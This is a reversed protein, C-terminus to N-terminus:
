NWTEYLEKLMRTELAWDARTADRRPDGQPYGYPDDPAAGLYELSREAIARFIPAACIGGFQHRGVGPVFRKEPEDISVLLVFRPHEAPVFGLFSSINRDRSYVGDIVKEATGSKGAETYGRVDARKSTGGEKTAFKMSRVIRKAAEAELVQAGLPLRTRDILVTQMGEANTKVIKRIIHPQVSRGGNALIAYSRVLQVANVLINHGLALSYPTPLSWEPKGNPHLKGPTPLLGPNESPLELLTKKGFGFLEFLTKRYWVDGMTEILRYALRGMYINSSKQIAMDMNLYQHVRADKLPTTRGPFWGQATPIKEDPSFLPERGQRKLEENAKMCVALTIPKFISGPEYCDSIAHVRAAGQLVPDNFYDAYRSPDFAPTQAIAWIEGTYPEMMVAWGGKGKAIAVGKELETEAIAQLYHNVTLYIDAGNEPLEVVKGLDLSHRPSRVRLKKGPKGKLYPNLLMELGGTPIGQGDKPDKENQVTHLVAGLMSGFPYSRKYESSFFLANAAIKEQRAFPRWWAEIADRTERDLWMAMKRSRSKRHLEARAKEKQEASWRLFFALQEVITEKAGLAIADPDAFLHFAPVDVVFPQNEEPHGLKISTNSYFSGRMFPITDIYQHQALAEKVWKEHELIQILYFRGILVIFCSFVAFAVWLLRQISRHPM